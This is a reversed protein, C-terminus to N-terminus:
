AMFNQDLRISLYTFLPLLPFLWPLPSLTWCDGFWILGWEVTTDWSAALDNANALSGFTELMLSTASHLVLWIAALVTGVVPMAIM